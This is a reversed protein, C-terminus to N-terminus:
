SNLIGYDGSDILNRIAAIFIEPAAYDPHNRYLAAVKNISKLEQMSTQIEQKESCTAHNAYTLKEPKIKSSHLCATIQKECRCPSLPNILGCKDELFERLAKRARSLRQRFAAPTIDLIQSAEISDVEFIESLIFALRHERDLCFLLGQTCAIEVERALLREEAVPPMAQQQSYELGTDILQGLQEFTLSNLEARRKRTNLLHNAAVRYVWTTFASDGRFSGLSTIIKILIEQTADQADQPFGLMRVALGYIKDQIARVLNELADKDGNVAQAVLEDIRIEMFVGDSRIPKDTTSKFGETLKLCYFITSHSLSESFIERTIILHLLRM